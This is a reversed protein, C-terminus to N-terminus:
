INKEVKKEKASAMEEEIFPKAKQNVAIGLGIFVWFIPAVSLNSDNSIGMVMYGVTSILIAVGVQAYYSNFHGKIYLRFSTIFYILYFALFAILSLLGTQVGMQLYLNHPKSLVETNFGSNYLNVYDRHPFAFIFTDAGSGLIPYKLLLPISRSWIYGRGSAYSEYGTFVASPATIIKDLKGFRNLYYYTGDSTQNTFNWTYGDITIYLFTADSYKNFGLMFGPFREDIPVYYNTGEHLQLPIENNNDDYLQLNIQGNQIFYKAHMNNHNYTIQIEDDKTQINSLPKEEKVFDSATKLQQFLINNNANNYILVVAILLLIAPITFYWNKIIHRSLLVLTLVVTVALGILSAKSKSGVLCLLISALALVYVPIMKKTKNFLLLIFLLPAILVTYVGVYNPNFLTLYVRGKEMVFRVSDLSSWDSPPMILKLGTKTSFFDHGSIQTIGIVGFIIVSVILSILIRRVDQETRVIIFTYYVALCYGLLVFISEFQDMSGSYSFGSYKSFVSSLIALLAYVALPIFIPVYTLKEKYYAYKTIIIIVISLSILLFFVQKYYLFFDYNQTAAPFWSNNGLNTDYLHQRMIFPLVSVILIVPLLLLINTPSINKNNKINKKNTVKRNNSQISQKSKGTSM